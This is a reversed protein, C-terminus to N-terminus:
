REEYDSIDISYRGAIRILQEPTATDLDTMDSIAAGFGGGFFAGLSESKLDRRLKEIDITM